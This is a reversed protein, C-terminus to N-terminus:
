SKRKLIAQLLGGKSEPRINHKRTEIKRVMLSNHQVVPLYKWWNYPQMLIDEVGVHSTAIWILDKKACMIPFHLLQARTFHFDPPPRKVELWRPGYEAHCVRLDPFGQQYLNGHTVMVHWDRIKLEKIIADQIVEELDQAPGIRMPNM